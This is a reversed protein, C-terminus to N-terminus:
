LKSFKRIESDYWPIDGPRITMAKNPVCSKVLDMFLTTFLVHSM